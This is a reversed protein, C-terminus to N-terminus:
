TMQLSNYLDELEADASSTVVPARQASTTTQAAPKALTSKPAEIDLMQTELEQAELENLEDLLEDDDMSAMMGTPQSLAENLENLMDQQEEMDDKLKDVEEITIGQHMAKMAQHGTRMSDFINKNMSAGEIAFIQQELNIRAGDLKAIESEYMKKRKLCMVASRTDNNKKREKAMQLENMAKSHLLNQRKEIDALTKRMNDLSELAQEPKMEPNKKKKGFLRM